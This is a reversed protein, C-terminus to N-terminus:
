VQGALHGPDGPIERFTHRCTDVELGLESTRQRFTFLPHYCPCFEKEKTGLETNDCPLWRTCKWRRPRRPPPATRVCWGMPLFPSREGKAVRHAQFLSRGSRSGMQQPFLLAGEARNGCRFQLTCEWCATSLKSWLWTHSEGEPAGPSPM